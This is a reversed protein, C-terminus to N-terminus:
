GTDDLTLRRVQRVGALTQKNFTADALLGGAHMVGLLLVRGSLLQQLVEVDASCAADCAVVYVLAQQVASSSSQLLQALAPSLRGTRSIIPINRIGQEALWSVMLCGLTGTGGIVAVAGAAYQEFQPVAAPPRRVVVKGVHRAQSMQRLAAAVSGLDHVASPLPRVVGAALQVSLKSMATNLGAASMFDVAVLGYAVDPREAAAAAAPAWIDRKGIEVFRGGRRLVSLSGGVMGPSTLSNLVVDVGGLRAIGEFCTLDRSNVVHEVGLSRLLSRKSPSGATAIPQAGIAQVLQLAALGVGGAAAHVLVREGPQLGAAQNLVMDVTIFVTPMTAAAEFSIHGPMPVLTQASAQVHSGLCGEALGFVAQGPQLSSSSGGAAAVVVGVVDSGPAGPDGPYMGLVNLVDRFNIGVAKVSLLVTGEQQLQMSVPVPILSSLSGKAKPLLQFPQSQMQATSHRLVPVHLVGAANSSGYGDAGSVAQSGAALATLSPSASVFGAAAAAAPMSTPDAPDKISSALATTPVEQIYSRLMGKVAADLQGTGSTPVDATSTPRSATAAAEQTAALLAHAAGAQGMAQLVAIMNSVAAAAPVGYSPLLAFQAAAAAAALAHQTAAAVGAAVDAAIWEIDYLMEPLPQQQQAASAIGRQVASAISRAELDHLLCVMHGDGDVLAHDRHTALAAAGQAAAGAAALRQAFASFGNSSLSSSGTGSSGPVFLRVAAPVMASKQEASMGPEPVVAGLQLVCDLVAPHVLYGDLADAVADGAVAAAAQQKSSHVSRLLRHAPKYQLGAAALSQYLAASDLPETCAARAADASMAAAGAAAAAHASTASGTAVAILSCHMHTTNSTTAGSASAIVVRGASLDVECTIVLQQQQQQQQQGWHPLVCPAALVVDALGATFAAAATAAGKGNSSYLSLGTPLLAAAAAAAMELYAAGPLLV